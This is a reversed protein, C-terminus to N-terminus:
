LLIVEASEIDSIGDVRTIHYMLGDGDEDEECDVEVACIVQSTESDVLIVSVGEGDELNTHQKMFTQLWDKTAQKAALYDRSAQAEQQVLTQLKSVNVVPITTENSM